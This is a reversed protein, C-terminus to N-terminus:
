EAIRINKRETLKNRRQRFLKNHRQHNSHRNAQNADSALYELYATACAQQTRQAPRFIEVCGQITSPSQGKIYTYIPRMNRHHSAPHKKSYYNALNINGPAWYVKFLGQEVQDVLWYFRMDMSKSRKQKIKKNTIGEATSNDTKLPVPDQKHGLEELTIILPIAEQANIYLGGCEAEALSSMVAKIIENVLKGDKNGLYHYGTARSRAKPAM